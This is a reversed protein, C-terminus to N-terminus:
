EERERRALQNMQKDQMHQKNEPLTPTKNEFTALAEVSDRTVAKEHNRCPQDIRRSPLKLSELFCLNQPGNCQSNYYVRM